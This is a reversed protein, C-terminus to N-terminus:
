SRATLENRILIALAYDESVVAKELQKKLEANSLRTFQNPYTTSHELDCIVGVSDLLTETAYIKVNFKQAIVIADSTRIEFEISEGKDECFLTSYFIGDEVKYILVEVLVINFREIFKELLDHTMPRFPRVGDIQMALRTAKTNSVLIPLRRKGGVEKLIIADDGLISHAFSLGLIELEKKPM